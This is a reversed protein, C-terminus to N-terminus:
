CDFRGNTRSPRRTPLCLRHREFCTAKDMKRVAAKAQSILDARANKGKIFQAKTETLMDKSTCNEFRAEFLEFESIHILDPYLKCPPTTGYVVKSTRATNATVNFNAIFKKLALVPNQKALEMLEDVM